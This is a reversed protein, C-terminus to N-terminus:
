RDPFSPRQHPSTALVDAPEAVPDDERDDVVVLNEAEDAVWVGVAPVSVAAARFYRLVASVGRNWL